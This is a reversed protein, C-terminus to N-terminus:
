RDITFGLQTTLQQEFDGLNLSNITNLQKILWPLLNTDQDEHIHKLVLKICESQKLFDEYKAPNSIREYNLVSKLVWNKKTKVLELHLLYNPNLLHGFKYNQVLTPLKISELHDQSLVMTYTIGFVQDTRHQLVIGQIERLEM